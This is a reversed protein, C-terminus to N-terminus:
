ARMRSTLVLALVASPGRGDGRTLTAAADRV